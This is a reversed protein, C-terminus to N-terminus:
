GFLVAHMIRGPLLTFSGAGILAFIFLSAMTYSHKKVNGRQGARIGRWLMVLTFVSLLHIPSWPGVLRITHIFFSSLAVATMLTIWLWGVVKHNRTGKKFALQLLGFGLALIAAAVHLQIAPSSNLLPQLNM